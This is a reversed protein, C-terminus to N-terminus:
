GGGINCHVHVIVAYVFLPISFEKLNIELQISWSFTVEQITRLLQNVAAAIEDVTNLRCGDEVQELGDM